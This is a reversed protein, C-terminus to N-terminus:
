REDCKVDELESLIVQNLKAYNRNGTLQRNNIFLTPTFRIGAERADEALELIHEEFVKDHIFSDLVDHEATFNLSILMVENSDLVPYISDIKEIYYDFYGAQHAYYASKTAFLTNPKTPHTLYRVVLKVMGRDIFDEKLRPYNSEFFETCADCDFRSYLFITVPAGPEGIVIDKDNVINLESMRNDRMVEYVFRNTNYVKENLKETKVLTIVLLILIIQIEVVLLYKM